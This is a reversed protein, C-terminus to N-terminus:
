CLYALQADAEYPSVICQIGLKMATKILHHAHTPTIDVAEIFKKEALEM